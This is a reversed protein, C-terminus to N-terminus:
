RLVYQVPATLVLPGDDAEPPRPPLPSARELLALTEKDLAMRGWSAFLMGRDVRGERDASFRVM